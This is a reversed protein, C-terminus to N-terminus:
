YEWHFLWKFVPYDDNVMPHLPVSNESLGMDLFDVTPDDLMVLLYFWMGWVIGYFWIMPIQHYCTEKLLQAGWGLQLGLEHQGM